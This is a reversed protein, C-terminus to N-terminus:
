KISKSKVFRDEARNGIHCSQAATVNSGSAIVAVPAMEFPTVVIFKSEDM